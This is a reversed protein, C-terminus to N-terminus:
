VDVSNEYKKFM